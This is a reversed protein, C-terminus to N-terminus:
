WTSRCPCSRQGAARGAAGVGAVTGADQGLQPHGPAELAAAVSLSRIPPGSAVLRRGMRGAAGHIAIRISMNPSPSHYFSRIPSIPTMVNLGM